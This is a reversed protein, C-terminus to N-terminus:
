EAGCLERPFCRSGTEARVIADGHAYRVLTGVVLRGDGGERSWCRAGVRPAVLSVRTHQGVSLPADDSGLPVLVSEGLAGGVAHRMKAGGFRVTAGVPVVFLPVRVACRAVCGSENRFAVLSSGVGGRVLELIDVVACESEDRLWLELSAPMADCTACAVVVTVLATAAGLELALVCGLPLLLVNTGRHLKAGCARVDRVAEAHEERVHRALTRHAHREACVPCERPTRECTMEHVRVACLSGRSSAGCEPASCVWRMKGRLLLTGLLGGNEGQVHLACTATVARCTPCTTSGALLRPLREFCELCCTHGTRCTAHPIRPPIGSFYEEACIVCSLMEALASAGIDVDSWTGTADSLSQLRPM